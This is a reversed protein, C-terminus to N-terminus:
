AFLAVDGHRQLVREPASAKPHQRVLETDV